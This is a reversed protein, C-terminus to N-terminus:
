KAQTLTIKKLHIPKVMFQKTADYDKVSVVYASGRKAIVKGTRGQMRKPFSAKFSLDRILAVSDGAKLPQFYRSFAIKGREHLKKRKLM